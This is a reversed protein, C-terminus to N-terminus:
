LSTPVCSELALGPLELLNHVERENLQFVPAGSCLILIFAFQNKKEGTTAM